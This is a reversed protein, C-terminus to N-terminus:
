SRPLAELIRAFRELAGRTLSPFEREDDADGIFCTLHELGADHIELLREAIASPTGSITDARDAGLRGDPSPAIRAWGTLHLTAPDRGAVACAEEVSARLTAVSARDVLGDAGNVADAWRAAVAMTRPRKAAVWIPPGAPRPGVPGINPETARYFRGEYTLSGERLLRAIVEVAEAFRGVHDAPDWGFTTWRKDAAGFGSGLGLVLRGASVEDLARVMTAFFTPSRYRTCVVLSGIGIRETAEAIATLVTWCEWFGPEDAVWLTDVGLAEADRGLTRMDAWRPISRDRTPWTPVYLGIRLTM